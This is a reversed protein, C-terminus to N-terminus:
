TYKLGPTDSPKVHNAKVGFSYSPSQKMNVRENQYAGPAESLLLIKLM